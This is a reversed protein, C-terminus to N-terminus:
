VMLMVNWSMILFAPLLRHHSVPVFSAKTAGCFGSGILEETRGEERNKALIAPLSFCVALWALM